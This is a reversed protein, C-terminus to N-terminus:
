VMAGIVSSNSTNAARASCRAVLIRGARSRPTADPGVTDSDELTQHMRIKLRVVREQEIERRGLSGSTPRSRASRVAELGLVQLKKLPDPRTVKLPRLFRGPPKGQDVARLPDVFDLFCEFKDGCCYSDM